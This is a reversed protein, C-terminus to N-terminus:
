RQVDELRSSSPMQCPRSPDCSHSHCGASCTLWRKQDYAPLIGVCALLGGFTCAAYYKASYLEINGAKAQAAQSAKTYERQAEASLQGAKSSMDDVASWAPFPSSRANYSPKQPQSVSSPRVYSSQSTFVDHLTGQTPFLLPM